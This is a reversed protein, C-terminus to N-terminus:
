ICMIKIYRASYKFFMQRLFFSKRLKWLMLMTWYHEMWTFQFCCTHKMRGLNNLHRRGLLFSYWQYTKLFSQLHFYLLHFFSLNAEQFLSLTFVFSMTWMIISLLSNMYINGHYSFCCIGKFEFYSPSQFLVGTRKTNNCSLSQGNRKIWVGRLNAFCACRLFIRRSKVSDFLNLKWLLGLLFSWLLM